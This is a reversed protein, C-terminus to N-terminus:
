AENAAVQQMSANFIATNTNNLARSQSLISASINATHM